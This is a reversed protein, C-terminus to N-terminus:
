DKETMAKELASTIEDIFSTKSRARDKMRHFTHYVDKLEVQYFKSFLNSISSISEGDFCNAHYLGYILELTQESFGM